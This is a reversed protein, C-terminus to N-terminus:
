AKEGTMETYTRQGSLWLVLEPLVSQKINLILSHSGMFIIMNRRGEDVDELHVHLNARFKRDLNKKQFTAKKFFNVLGKRDNGSLHISGSFHGDEIWWNNDALHCSVQDTLQFRWDKKVESM